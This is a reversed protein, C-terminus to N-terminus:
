AHAFNASLRGSLPPPRRNRINRLHDEAKGPGGGGSPGECDTVVLFVRDRRGQLCEGIDGQLLVRSMVRPRDSQSHWPRRVKQHKRPTGLSCCEAGADPFLHDGHSGQLEEQEAESLYLPERQRGDLSTCCAPVGRTVVRGRQLMTRSSDQGGLRFHGASVDTPRFQQRM